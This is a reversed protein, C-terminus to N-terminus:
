CRLLQVVDVTCEFIHEVIPDCAGRLRVEVNGLKVIGDRDSNGHLVTLVQGNAVVAREILLASYRVASSLLASLHEFIM